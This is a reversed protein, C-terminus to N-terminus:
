GKTPGPVLGIEWVTQLVNVFQTCGHPTAHKHGGLVTQQHYKHMRYLQTHMFHPVSKAPKLDAAKKVWAVKKAQLDKIKVHESACNGM